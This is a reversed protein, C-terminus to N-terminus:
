GKAGAGVPGGLQHIAKRNNARSLAEEYAIVKNMVLENLHDELAQMGYKKGAQMTTLLQAMKNERILARVADTAVLVELAAVRGGRIRPVLTQSVIGQLTGALQMRIQTQQEPPFVNVIRDITKGSSTTHLTGFVLHGTEAATVALSITELDRMEGILIVDPDQRLARRLAESFNATDSGVERQNIYCKKDMHLFEIPDEM